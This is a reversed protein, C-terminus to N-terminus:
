SSLVILNTNSGNDNLPTAVGTSRNNQGSISNSTAFTQIGINANVMINDNCVSHDHGTTSGSSFRICITSTNANAQSFVQNGIIQHLGYGVGSGGRQMDIGIAGDSLLYILNGILQVQTIDMCYIGRSRAAIHTNTVNLWPQAAEGASLYPSVFIGNDVNVFRGDSITLGEIKGNVVLASACESAFLKSISNDLSDLEGALNFATGHAGDGRFFISEAIFYSGNTIKLGTALYEGSARGSFSINRFVREVRINGTTSTVQVDLGKSTAGNGRFGMNEIRCTVADGWWNEVSSMNFIFILGADNDTQFSFLSTNRGQGEIIIDDPDTLTFTAGNIPYVGRGLVIKKKTAIANTLAALNEAATKTTGGGYMELTVFPFPLFKAITPDTLGINDVAQLQQSPTLNQDENYKLSGDDAM